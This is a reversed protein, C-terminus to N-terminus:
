ARESLDAAVGPLAAAGSQEIRSLRSELAHQQTKLADNEAKLSKMSEVLVRIESETLLSHEVSSSSHKDLEMRKYKLIGRSIIASIPVAMVTMTIFVEEM